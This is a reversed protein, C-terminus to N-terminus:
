PELRARARGRRADHLATGLEASAHYGGIPEQGGRRLYVQHGGARQDGEGPHLSPYWVQLSPYWVQLSPYWVQLSPYWVQVTLRDPLSICLRSHLTVTSGARSGGAEM